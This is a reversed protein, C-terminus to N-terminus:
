SDDEDREKNISKNQRSIWFWANLCGLAMGIGMLMLAWSYQGQNKIDIWAGLFVGIVTPVAVAWGVVGFTGVGFWIDGPGRKRARLRSKEKSSIQKRFHSDRSSDRKNNKDPM